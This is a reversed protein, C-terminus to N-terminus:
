WLVETANGVDRATRDVVLTEWLFIEPPGEGRDIGEVLFQPEIVLYFVEVLVLQRVEWPQSVKNSEVALGPGSRSKSM